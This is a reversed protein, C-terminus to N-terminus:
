TGSIKPSMEIPEEPPEQIDSSFLLPLCITEGSPGRTDLRGVLFGIQRWPSVKDVKRTSDSDGNFTDRQTLL